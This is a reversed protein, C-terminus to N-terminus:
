AVDATKALIDVIALAVRGPRLPVPGAVLQELCDRYGLNRFRGVAARVSGDSWVDWAWLRLFDAFRHDVADFLEDAGDARGLRACRDGQGIAREYGGARRAWYPGTGDTCCRNLQIEYGGLHVM